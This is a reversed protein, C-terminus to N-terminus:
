RNGHVRWPRGTVAPRPGLTPGRVDFRVLRQELLEAIQRRLGVEVGPSRDSRQIRSLRVVAVLPFGLEVLGEDLHRLARSLAPAVRAVDPPVRSIEPLTIGLASAADRIVPDEIYDMIEPWNRDDSVHSDIDVIFVDDFNRANAQQRARALLERSDTWDDIQGYSRKFDDSM